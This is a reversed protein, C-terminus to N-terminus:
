LKDSNVVNQDRLSFRESSKDLSGTALGNIGLDFGIRM